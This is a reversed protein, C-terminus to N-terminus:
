FNRARPTEEASLEPESKKVRPRSSQFSGFCLRECYYGFERIADATHRVIRQLGNLHESFWGSYVAYLLANNSVLESQSPSVFDKASLQNPAVGKLM